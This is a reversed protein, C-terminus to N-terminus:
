IRSEYLIFPTPDDAADSANLLCSEYEVAQDWNLDAKKDYMELRRSVSLLYRLAIVEKNDAMGTAPDQQAGHNNRSLKLGKGRTSDAMTGQAALILFDEAVQNWHTWQAAATGKFPQWPQDGVTTGKPPILTRSRRISCGLDLHAVQPITLQVPTHDGLASAGITEVTCSVGLLPSTIFWDLVRGHLHTPTTTAM